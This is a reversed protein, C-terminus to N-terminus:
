LGLGTLLIRYFTVIAFIVKLRSSIISIKIELL